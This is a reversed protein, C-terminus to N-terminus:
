EYQMSDDRTEHTKDVQKVTASARKESCLDVEAERQWHKTKRTALRRNYVSRLSVEVRNSAKYCESGKPLLGDIFGKM